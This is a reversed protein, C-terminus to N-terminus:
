STIIEPIVQIEIIALKSIPQKGDHNGNHKGDHNGNHKGDHKGDSWFM